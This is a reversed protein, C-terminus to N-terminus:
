ILDFFYFTKINLNKGRINYIIILTRNNTVKKFDELFETANKINTLPWYKELSLDINKIKYDEKQSNFFISYHNNESNFFFRNFEENILSNVSIFVKKIEDIIEETKVGIKIFSDDIDDGEIDDSKLIKYFSSKTELNNKVKITFSCETEVLFKYKEKRTSEKNDYLHVHRGGTNFKFRYLIFNEIEIASALDGNTFVYVSNVELSDLDSISKISNTNM